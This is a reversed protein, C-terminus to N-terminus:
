SKELWIKTVPRSRNEEMCLSCPAAPLTSTTRYVQARAQQERRAREGQRRSGPVVATQLACILARVSLLVHRDCRAHPTVACDCCMPVLCPMDTVGRTCFPRNPQGFQDTRLHYHTTTHHPTTPPHPITLPPHHHITTSPPPPHNHVTTSLPLCHHVTTSLTSLPPPFHALQDTRLHQAHPTHTRSVTCM